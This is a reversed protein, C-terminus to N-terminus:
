LPSTWTPRQSSYSLHEWARLPPLGKPPGLPCTVNTSVSLLYSRLGSKLSLHPLQFILFSTVWFCHVPNNVTAPIGSYTHTYSFIPKFFSFSFLLFFFHSLCPTQPQYTCIIVNLFSLCLSGVTYSLFNYGIEPSLVHYFVNHSFSYIHTCIYLIYFQCLVLDVM